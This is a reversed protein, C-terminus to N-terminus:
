LLAISGSAGMIVNNKHPAKGIGTRELTIYRSMFLSLGSCRAWTMLAFSGVILTDSM